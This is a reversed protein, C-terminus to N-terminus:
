SALVMKLDRPIARPKFNEADLCAVLIRGRAILRGSNQDQGSAAPEPDRAAARNDSDDDDFRNESSVSQGGGGAVVTRCVQEFVMSARRIVVPEASVDLLDDLRAPHDFQCEASRVVFMVREQLLMTQQEFGLYRLYETRAREMYKLYNAYYVIGGLDTDEYYVRTKISFM